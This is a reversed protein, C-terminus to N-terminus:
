FTNKANQHAMQAQEKEFKQPDIDQSLLTQYEDRKARAMGLSVVPYAGLSVMTRKKTFPKYYNFHWIKSHKGILLSLGGGDYLRYPKDSLKATDIQKTSLPKVQRM